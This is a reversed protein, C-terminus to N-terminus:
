DDDVIFQSAIELVEEMTRPEDVVDPFPSDGNLENLFGAHRAEVSHIGLAADLIDDNSVTPAAGAYASVGTNELAAGIELFESPTEFGFDYEAAKVPDGGLQTVTDQLVEVHAAEHDCVTLLRDPVQERVTDDFDSIVEAEVLEDTTFGQLGSRYFALELHELTLAYNLVDLDSTDDDAKRDPDPRSEDTEFRSADVESTVFGGAVDLVESTSLKPDIVKPFPSGGNVLNLFGAHRAEVSHIGLAASLVDNNVVMPAAGAYAAVGTNELAAAVGLFESPTEYGFDYEGEEVPNGGLSEVTDSLAQVHAAEHEGVTELYDPVEMRIRDGFESLVDAEMLEDDGFEDLGDRYFVNELHELTLAYNLIPVDPAPESSEDDEGTTGDGDDTTTTDAATTTTSDTTTNTEGGVGGSDSVCGAFAITGLAATTGLFARRTTDDTTHSTVDPTSNEDM